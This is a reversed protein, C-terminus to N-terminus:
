DAPRTEPGHHAEDESAASRSGASSRLRAGGCVWGILFVVWGVATLGVFTIIRFILTAAAAEAAPVAALPVLTSMLAVDVPGLGGPTIQAQGILKAALFALMVGGIGPRADVAMLCAWLAAAEWVWKAAALLLAWGTARSSIRVTRVQVAVNDISASWRNPSHGTRRNWWRAASKIIRVLAWPNRSIWRFLALIAAVAVLAGGLASLDLDAGLFPVAALGLIAMAAAALVGSVVLYWSAIVPTAGWRVQERFVLGASIAPGGPLSASWANAVLGLMNSPFRKVSVGAARLLVVMSEAQTCMTLATLLVALATYSYNATLVADIGDTVLDTQQSLILALIGFVGLIGLIRVWPRALWATM